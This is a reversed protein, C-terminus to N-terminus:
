AVIGLSAQGSKYIGLEPFPEPLKSIQSSWAAKFSLFGLCYEAINCFRTKWPYTSFDNRATNFMVRRSVGIASLQRNFLVTNGLSLVAYTASSVSLLVSNVSYGYKQPVRGCLGDKSMCSDASPPEYKSRLAAVVAGGSVACLCLVKLMVSVCVAPTSHLVM